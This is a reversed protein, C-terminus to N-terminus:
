PALLIAIGFVAWMAAIIALFGLFIYLRVKPNNLNIDM